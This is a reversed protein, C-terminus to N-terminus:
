YSLVNYNIKNFCKIKVKLKYHVNQMYFYFGYEM